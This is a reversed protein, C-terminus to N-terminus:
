TSIRMRTTLCQFSEPHILLKHSELPDDFFLQQRSPPHRRHMGLSRGSILSSMEGRVDSYFCASMQVSAGM